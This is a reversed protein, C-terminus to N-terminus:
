EKRVFNLSASNVCHRIQKDTFGEGRFVHGLHGHCNSCVIETRFGDSDQLEKVHQDIKDDFSPWGTGSDFKDEARFLPNNCRKCIYIGQKKIHNLNGSFPRETGKKEIIYTEFDSLPNYHAANTIVQPIKNLEQSNNQACTALGFVVIVKLLVVLRNM